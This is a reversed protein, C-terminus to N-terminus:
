GDSPESSDNTDPSDTSEADGDVQVVGYSGDLRVDVVSGDPKTVEVEYTAGDESDRELGTVSGGGVSALAARKARHAQAGAISQDGSGSFVGAAGAIAAGVLALVAIATVGTAVKPLRSKM